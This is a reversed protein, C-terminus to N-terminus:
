LSKPITESLITMVGVGAMIMIASPITIPNYIGTMSMFHGVAVASILIAIVM